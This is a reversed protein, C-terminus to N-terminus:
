VKLSKPIEKLDKLIGKFEESKIQTLSDGDADLHEPPWGRFIVKITQLVRNSIKFIFALVIKMAFLVVGLLILVFPGLFLTQVSNDAV